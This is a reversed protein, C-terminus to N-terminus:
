AKAILLLICLNLIGPGEPTLEDEDFTVTHMGAIQGVIHKLDKTTTGEPVHAENLIKILADRDNRIIFYPLKHLRSKSNNLSQTNM